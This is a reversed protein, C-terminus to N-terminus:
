AACALEFSVTDGAVPTTQREVSADAKASGRVPRARGGCVVSSAAVASIASGTSNMSIASAASTTFTASITRRRASGPTSPVTPRMELMHAGIKLASPASRSHNDTGKMGDHSRGDRPGHSTSVRTMGEKALPSATRSAGAGRPSALRASRALSTAPVVGSRTEPRKPNPHTSRLSSAPPKSKGMTRPIARGLNTENPTQDNGAASSAAATAADVTAGEGVVSSRDSGRGGAVRGPDCVIPFPPGPWVLVHPLVTRQGFGM